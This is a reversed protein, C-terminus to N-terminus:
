QKEEKLYRYLTTRSIGLEKAVLTKNNNCKRLLQQIISEEDCLENDHRGVHSDYKFAIELSKTVSLDKTYIVCFRELLNKLERVNGSWGYTMLINANSIENIERETLDHRMKRLLFSSILPIDEVRKRLPPIVIRLTNLRHYLDERFRGKEIMEALDVNTAAVIRVDVSRLFEGGIRLVEKEEIARLLQAQMHMPIEGIEDLFLTGGHALEFLGMKGGRKAGTFAGEEYGFLESEVLSPPLAAFNVSVFPGGSRKSENHISQAFLEKGVGTEGTILINAQSHAYKASMLKVERIEESNGLIDSFAYEAAFRKKTIKKRVLAESRLINSAYQFFLVSGLLEEGISGVKQWRFVVPEDDISIVKETNEEVTGKIDSINCYPFANNVRKGKINAIKVHFMNEAYTNVYQVRDNSDLFVAGKKVEDLLITLIKSSNFLDETTKAIKIAEEAANRIATENWISKTEMHLKRARDCIYGSGIIIPFAEKAYDNLVIDAEQYNKIIRVEVPNKLLSNIVDFYPVYDELIIVKINDSIRRAEEVAKLIDYVEPKIAVVPTSIKQIAQLNRTDIGSSVLVYRKHLNFNDERGSFENYDHYISFTIDESIYERSVLRITDSIDTCNLFVIELKM